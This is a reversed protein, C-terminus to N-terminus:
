GKGIKKLNAAARARRKAAVDAPVRSQGAYREDFKANRRRRMAAKTTCM